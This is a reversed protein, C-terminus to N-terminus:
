CFFHQRQPFQTRSVQLCPKNPITFHRNVLQFNGSHCPKVESNIIQRNTKERNLIATIIYKQNIEINIKYM